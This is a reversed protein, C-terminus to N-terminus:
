CRVANAGISHHLVNECACANKPHAVQAATTWERRTFGPEGVPIFVQSYVLIKNTEVAYVCVREKVLFFIAELMDAFVFVLM